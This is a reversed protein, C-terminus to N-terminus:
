EIELILDNLKEITEGVEYYINKFIIIDGKKTKSFQSKVEVDFNESNGEYEFFIRKQRIIMLNYKIKYNEISFPYSDIRFRFPKIVHKIEYKGSEYIFSDNAISDSISSEFVLKFKPQKVVYLTLNKLKKKKEFISINIIGISDPIITFRCSKLDKFFSGNDIKINIGKCDCANNKYVYVDNITKVYLDDTRKQQVVKVEQSFTLLNISIIFFFIVKM